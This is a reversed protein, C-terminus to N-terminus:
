RPNIDNLQRELGGSGLWRPDVEFYGNIDHPHPKAETFSGDLFVECVGVQWLESVLLEANDVLQARWALDWAAPVDEAPGGVLLSGRLEAFTVEYTAIELVGETTFSYPLTYYVM